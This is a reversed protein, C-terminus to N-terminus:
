YNVEVNYKEFSDKFLYMLKQNIEISKIWVLPCLYIFWFEDQKILWKEFLKKKAKSLKSDNYQYDIKLRKFDIVNEEDIYNIIKYLFWLDVERLWKTIEINIKRDMFKKMFAKNNIKAYPKYIDWNQKIYDDIFDIDKENLLFWEWKIKNKYFINHLEKEIRHAYKTEFWKLYEIKKANWTQIQKLRKGIDSTFWIKHYEWDTVIYIQKM